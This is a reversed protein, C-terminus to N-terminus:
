AARREKRLKRRGRETIGGFIGHHESMGYEACEAAVECRRCVNIAEIFMGGRSPFWWSTPMGRCAARQMWEPREFLGRIPLDDEIV